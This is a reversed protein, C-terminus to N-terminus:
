PEIERLIVEDGKMVGDTIQVRGEDGKLGVTVNREVPTGDVLVRITKKGTEADTRIARSPIIIANMVKDTEITVNATMGPKIEYDETNLNVRVDYYIADQIVTQDPNEATVIGTFELDDSYADLTIIAPQGVKVKTIDAEPVQAEIDYKATGIMKIQATNAVIQEGIDSVVDTITGDVPAYIKAKALNAAAQDYAVLADQVQARLGAVDVERPAALKLDLAAQAADVAAKQIDVASQAATQKMDINTLAIQYATEASKVADELKTRDSTQSLEALEVAQRASVVTSKQASVSTYDGDILAKKATLDASPLYASTITNALVNKVDLLYAQVAEVASQMKQTAILVQDKSSSADIADLARSAEDRKAKAIKYSNEAKTMSGQDGIGLIAKYYQNSATDDVGIIADGDILATNIPGIATKLSVRATEIANALSQDSIPGTNALNNKATELAIEASDLDSQVQIKTNDLDSLAKEYAAQSQGLQARAVKISEETEGALRANLNARAMALAAEARRYAFNLDEVDLEALLDGQKVDDGIKVYVDKLGGNSEFALDIRAAPKIEGTVEVTQKLEGQEAVFSEYEVQGANKSYNWYWLGGLIIIALLVYYRKKKLFKPIRSKKPATNAVSATEM